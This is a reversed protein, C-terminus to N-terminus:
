RNEGLMGYMFCPPLTADLKLFVFRARFLKYATNIVFRLLYLFCITTCPWRKGRHGADKRDGKKGEEM